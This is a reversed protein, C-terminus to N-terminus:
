TGLVTFTITGAFIGDRTNTPATMRVAGQTVVTGLGRNAHLVQHGTSGGLGLNGTATSSLGNAGPNDYGTFNEGAITGVGPAGPTGPTQGGLFFDYPPQMNTSVLTLGTLGLDQANIIDDVTPAGVGQKTFNSALANLTYGNTGPRTDTVSIGDFAGSTSYLSATGNLKMAPLFIYGCEHTDQQLVSPLFPLLEGATVPIAGSVANHATAGAATYSVLGLTAPTAIDTGITCYTAKTPSGDYPTSITITGPDIATAIAQVDQSIYPTIVRITAAPSDSPLLDVASAVVSGGYKATITHTVGPAGGGSFVSSPVTFAFGNSGDPDSAFPTTSGDLYFAISGRFTGSGNDPQGPDVLTVFATGSLTAPYTVTGPADLPDSSQINGLTTVTTIAPPKTVTVTLSASAANGVLVGQATFYQAYVQTTGITFTTLANTSVTCPVSPTCTGTIIRTGDIQTNGTFFKVRGGTLTGSPPAVTASFVLPTGQPSPAAPSVTPTSVVPTPLMVVPYVVRWAGPALGDYTATATPPNFEIDSAWYKNELPVGPGFDFVRLELVHLYDPDTGSYLTLGSAAGLVNAGSSDLHSFAGPANPAFGPTGSPTPSWTFASPSLQASAWTSPTSNSIDPAAVYASVQTAGARPASGSTGLWAYSAGAQGIASVNTGGSIQQGSPDYLLVFGKRAGDNPVWVPAGNAGSGVYASASTLPLALGVAVLAAAILAAVSTRIRVPM